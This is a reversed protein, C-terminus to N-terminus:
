HVAPRRIELKRLELLPIEENDALLMKQGFPIEAGDEAAEWVTIRGLRVADDAHSSSFPSLVPLLVEGLDGGEFGTTTHITAPAWVLDRLRKPPEMEISVIQELPVWMYNGGALVEVRAGVRPDSDEISQYERGNLWGGAPTSPVGNGPAKERFMEQRTREATIAARYLLAGLRRDKTGSPDSGALIELQKDARDWNGSFCLLEFLFTRRQADSPNDRLEAGLAEIAQNLKGAEFLERATQM